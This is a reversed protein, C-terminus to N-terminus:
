REFALLCALNAALFTQKIESAPLQPPPHCVDIWLSVGGLGEVPIPHSSEYVSPPSRYSYTAAACDDRVTMQLNTMLPRVLM